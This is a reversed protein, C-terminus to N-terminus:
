DIKRDESPPHGWFRRYQRSFFLPNEYGVDAAIQKLPLDSEHALFRARLQRLRLLYNQVTGGTAKKFLIRFHNPSLSLWRYFVELANPQRYHTQLWTIAAKVEPHVRQGPTQARASHSAVVSAELWFRSLSAKLEGELVLQIEETPAGPIGRALGTNEYPLHVGPWLKLMRQLAAKELVM